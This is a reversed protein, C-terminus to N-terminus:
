KQAMQQMLSNAMEPNASAWAALKELTTETDPFVRRLKDLAPEIRDYDFGEDDTMQVGQVAAPQPQPQPQATPAAPLNSLLRLGLHQVLQYVEPREVLNELFRDIAGIRADKDARLDEMERRLEYVEQRRTVEAEIMTKPDGYIGWAGAVNGIGAVAAMPNPNPLKVTTTMGVNFGPKNTIFVRFTGGADSHAALVDEMLEWAKESDSIEMNRYIIRDPKSEFGRYITFYPRPEAGSNNMEFWRELNELTSIYSDKSM